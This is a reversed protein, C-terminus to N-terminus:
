AAKEAQKRWYAVQKKLEANESQFHNRSAKIADNEIELCRVQERLDEMTRLVTAKAEEPEDTSGIALRDKLMDNETSLSRIAERAEELEYDQVFEEQEANLEPKPKQPSVARVIAATTVEGAVEKAAMVADEFQAPTVKALKQWRASDNKTIGMDALTKTADEPPVVIPGGSSDRGTLQGRAGSSKKLELLMEGARREARVKIETVWVIMETDKAQRAYAAMAEAKDRIDRVEDISHAAALATKAANYRVLASM